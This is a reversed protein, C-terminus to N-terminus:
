RRDIDKAGSVFHGCQLGDDGIVSSPPVTCDAFSSRRARLTWKMEESIIGTDIEDSDVKGLCIAQRNVDEGSHRLV